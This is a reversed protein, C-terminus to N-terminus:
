VSCITPLTLHTYSVPGYREAASRFADLNAHATALSDMDTEAVFFPLGVSALTPAHHVTTIANAPLSVCAAFVAPDM